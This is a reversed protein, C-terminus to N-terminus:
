MGPQYVTDSALEQYIRYSMAILTVLLFFYVAPFIPQVLNYNLATMPIGLGQLYALTKMIASSTFIFMMLILFNTLWLIGMCLMKLGSAM